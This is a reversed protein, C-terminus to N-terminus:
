GGRQRQIARSHLQLVEDLVMQRNQRHVRAWPEGVSFLYHTGLMVRVQDSNFQLEYLLDLMPVLSVLPDRHGLFVEVLDWRRPMPSDRITGMAAFTRATVSRLTGRYIRDHEARVAPSAGETLTELVRPSVLREIPELAGIRGVLGIGLGLATYFARGLDDRLLLAPALATRTLEGLRWKSDDAFFLAAGSMSHGILHVAKLRPDGVARRVNLLSLWGEVVRMVALPSCEEYEPTRDAFPTSGFGNVDVALSVLRRNQNILACPMDEWIAHSGTWGHMFVAYGEASDIMTPLLEDPTADEDGWYMRWGFDQLDAKVLLRNVESIPLLNRNALDRLSYRAMQTRPTLGEGRDRYGSLWRLGEPTSIM